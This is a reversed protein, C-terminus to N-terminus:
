WVISVSWYWWCCGKRWWAPSLGSPLWQICGVMICCSWHQNYGFILRGFMFSCGWPSRVASSAPLVSPFGSCVVRWRCQSGSTSSFHARSWTGGSPSSQLLRWREIGSLSSSDPPASLAWSRLLPSGVSFLTRNCILRVESTVWFCLNGYCISLSFSNMNRVWFLRAWCLFRCGKPRAHWALIPLHKPWPADLGNTIWCSCTTLCLQPARSAFFSFTLM